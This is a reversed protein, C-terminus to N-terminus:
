AQPEQDIPQITAGIPNSSCKTLLYHIIAARILEARRMHMKTCCAKLQKLTEKDLMTEVAHILNKSKGKYRPM